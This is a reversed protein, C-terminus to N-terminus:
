SRIAPFRRSVASNYVQEHKAVADDLRFSGTAIARAERGLTSRLYEDDGLREIWKALECRNEPEFLIGGGHGVIEPNGGAKSVLVALGCSMAELLAVCSGEYRSPLVFVDSAMLYQDVNEVAGRFIINGKGAAAEVDKRLPGDGLIVLSLVKGAAPSLKDWAQLLIDVGKVYELRGAFTFVVNELPLGLRRRLGAKDDKGCAHFRDTDVGNQILFVNNIGYGALDEEIPRSVAIFCDTNRKIFEIRLLGFLREALLKIESGSQSGGEVRAVVPKAFLKGALSAALAPGALQHAQLIDIKQRHRWIHLICGAVFSLFAARGRGPVPLRRIEIGNLTEHPILGSYGPTLVTVRHGKKCLLEGM